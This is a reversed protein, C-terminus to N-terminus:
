GLRVRERRGGTIEEFDDRSVLDYWRVRLPAKLGNENRLQPLIFLNKRAEWNGIRESHCAFDRLVIVFVDDWDKEFLVLGRFTKSALAEELQPEEPVLIDVVITTDEHIPYGELSAIQWHGDVKKCRFHVVPAEVHIFQCSSDKWGARELMPLFRTRPLLEERGRLRGLSASTHKTQSDTRPFNEYLRKNLVWDQSGLDVLIPAISDDPQIEFRIHVNEGLVPRSTRYSGKWGAWSWSPFESRRGEPNDMSWALGSLFGSEWNILRGDHHRLIPIGSLHGTIIDEAVLHNFIGALTNIRDTEYTIQRGNVTRIHHNLETRTFFLEAGPSHRRDYGDDDVLHRVESHAYNRIPDEIGTSNQKCNFVVQSDTFYLIRRSFFKEQYTWARTNWRSQQIAGGRLPHAPLGVFLRDEILIHAPFARPLSVGPLGHDPGNGAAAVITVHAQQYIGDMNRIQNDKEKENRQPICYKDVWLYDLGLERTAQFADEITRPLQAPLGDGFEDDVM